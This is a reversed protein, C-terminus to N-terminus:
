IMKCINRRMNKPMYKCPYIDFWLCRNISIKRTFQWIVKKLSFTRPMSKSCKSIDFNVFLASCLHWMTRGDRLTDKRWKTYNLLYHYRKSKPISNSKYYLFNAVHHLLNSEFLDDQTLSYYSKVLGIFKWTPLSAKRWAFSCYRPHMRWAEWLYYSLLIHLNKLEKLCINLCKSDMNQIHNDFIM